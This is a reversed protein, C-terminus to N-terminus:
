FFRNWQATKDWGPISNFILDQILSLIYHMKLFVFLRISVSLVRVGDSSVPCTVVWQSSGDILSRFCHHCGRSRSGCFRLLNLNSFIVARYTCWAKTYMEKGANCLALNWMKYLVPVCSLLERQRKRFKLVTRLIWWNWFMQWYKPYVKMYRVLIASSLLVMAIRILTLFCPKKINGKNKQKLSM